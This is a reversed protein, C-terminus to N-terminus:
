ELSLFTDSNLQVRLMMEISLHEQLPHHAQDQLLQPLATGDPLRRVVSASAVLSSAGPAPVLLHNEGQAPLIGQLLQKPPQAGTKREAQGSCPPPFCLVHGLLQEREHLHVGAGCAPLVEKGVDRRHQGARPPLHAQPSAEPVLLHYPVNEGDKM